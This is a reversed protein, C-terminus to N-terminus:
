LQDRSRWAYCGQMSLEEAWADVALRDGRVGAPPASTAYELLVEARPRMRHENFVRALKVESIECASLVFALNMAAGAQFCRTPYLKELGPDLSPVAESLLKTLYTRQKERHEPLGSAIEREVRLDGPTSTLQYVLGAYVAKSLAEITAPPARPALKRALERHEDPPLCRRPTVVSVCPEDAPVQWLRRIKYAVNVVFHTRHDTDATRHRLVHAPRRGFAMQLGVDFPLFEVSVVHLPKGTIQLIDEILAGGYEPMEIDRADM